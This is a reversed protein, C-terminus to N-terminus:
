KIIVKNHVKWYSKYGNLYMLICHEQVSFKKLFAGETDSVAHEHGKELGQIWCKKAVTARSDENQHPEGATEAKLNFFTWTETYSSSQDAWYHGYILNLREM